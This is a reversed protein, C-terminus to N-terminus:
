VQMHHMMVGAFPREDVRRFGLSLYLHEARPNDPDVLLGVPKGLPAFHEIAAAILRGAIKRGRFDPFVALTDLYVEDDSTEPELSDDYELGLTEKAQRFFVRRLTLLRAGDYGIILGATRGTAADEAVLVNKYSYQSDTRGALQRFMDHVLPVRDHTGAFAETIEDGVAIIIATAIDAADSPRGPRIRIDNNQNTSNSEM